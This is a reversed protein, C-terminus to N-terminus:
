EALALPLEAVVEADVAEREIMGKDIMMALYEKALRKVRDRANEALVQLHDIAASKNKLALEDIALRLRLSDEVWVSAATELLAEISDRRTELAERGPLQQQAVTGDAGVVYVHLPPLFEQEIAELVKSPPTDVIASTASHWLHAAYISNPYAALVEHSIPVVGKKRAWALAQADVGAPRLVEVDLVNSEVTGNFVPVSSEPSRGSSGPPHHSWIVKFRYTDERSYWENIACPSSILPSDCLCMLRPVSLERTAGSVLIEWDVQASSLGPPGMPMCTKWQGDSWIQLQLTEFSPSVYLDQDTDNVLKVMFPNPELPLQRHTEARLEVDLAAVPQALLLFAIALPLLPRM